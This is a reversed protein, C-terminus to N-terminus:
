HRVFGRYGQSAIEDSIRRYEDLGGIYPMFVRPKGPVNSGLYWSNSSGAVYLSKAAVDNVHAVWETEAEPRPAVFSEGADRLTVLLDAIWEVHQECSAVMNSLVSPSGPGAVLFLNPFGASMLGLYTLPGAAWKEALPVGDAGRVDIRLFSGTMADFGIALILADVPTEGDTTRIGHQTIREIPTRALNKLTVNPRNFTTFYDTDVAIRRSGIAYDRPTLDDAVDVDDVLERIKRRVFDAVQGNAAPDVLTDIFQATLGAGGTAWAEELIATREDEAFDFLSKGTSPFRIGARTRRTEARREAYQAKAAEDEEATMVANRAPISFNATRQFVTLHAAQEAILPIAQIASSGTGIIGVRKGGLDVGDEPWSATSILDGRFNDLGAIDPTKATSLSGTAMVVFRAEVTDGRDTEVRWGRTEPQWITREVRTGFRILTRLDFRDAVHGLYELIEPQTAYRESWRWQQQLDHDFSYSYDLSDFDCRAGPYRNWYWTGGVDNGAEIGRVTFGLDRLKKLAYLGGFGAGIVVVDVTETGTLKRAGELAADEPTSFSSTM